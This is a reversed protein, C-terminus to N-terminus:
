WSHSLAKPRCAEVCPLHPRDSVPKCPSCSDKLKKRHDESVFAVPEDRFPDFEDEGTELVGYPCAKVCDGRGNCLKTDITIFSEGSGDKYGYNAIM